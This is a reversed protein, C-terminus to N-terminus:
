SCKRHTPPQCSSHPARRLQVRPAFASIIVRIRRTHAPHNCHYHFCFLTPISPIRHTATADTFKAISELALGSRFNRLPSLVHGSWGSRFCALALAPYGITLGLDNHEATKLGISQM